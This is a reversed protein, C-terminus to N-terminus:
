AANPLRTVPIGFEKFDEEYYGLVKRYLTSDYYAQFPDHESKNVHIGKEKIGFWKRFDEVVGELNEFKGVYDLDQVCRDPHTMPAAHHLCMFDPQPKLEHFNKPSVPKDQNMGLFDIFQHANKDSPWWEMKTCYAWASIFRDFPNRVITFKWYDKYQDPIHGHYQEVQSTISQLYAKMTLGGCKPMHIFLIELEPYAYIASM